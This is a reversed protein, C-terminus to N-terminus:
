EHRGEAGEYEDVHQLVRRVDSPKPSGIATLVRRAM